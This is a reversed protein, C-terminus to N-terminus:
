LVKTISIKGDKAQCYLTFEYANEHDIKVNLEYSSNDALEQWEDIGVLDEEGEFNYDEFKSIVEDTFDDIDIDKISELRALVDKLTVRFVRVEEFESKFIEKDDETNM